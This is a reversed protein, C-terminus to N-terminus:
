TAGILEQSHQQQNWRAPGIHMYDDLAEAAKDPALLGLRIIAGALQKPNEQQLSLLHVLQDETLWDLRVAAVGFREGTEQQNKVIHTVQDSDLYGCQLAIDGIRAPEARCDLLAKSVSPIDLMRHAVLWRSFRHQLVQQLLNREQKDVLSTVCARNRGSRKAEYLCEDARAILRTGLERENRGPVAIAGGMSVTVPVRVDGFLFVESEVRSRIRECLRELGKETPQSVLVVFEEGGYRALVDSTRITSSFLRAIQKLVYDGFPHGYTDNVHKFHDVDAFIVGLATACRLCRKSETELMEDFFQRNYIETLPDHLAQKQLQRNEFELDRTGQEAAQQRLTAQVSAVHARLTLKVLQDNAQATLISSTPISESQCLSDKRWARQESEEVFQQTEVESWHFLESALHHLRDFAPARRTACVVDGTRSALAMAAQLPFNTSGKRALLWEPAVHHWRIAEVISSPLKWREMLRSGVDAHHLGLGNLELQDLRQDENAAEELIPRYETGFSSLLALRGVDLLLGCFSYQDVCDAAIKEAIIAAAASQVQSQHWCNRYHILLSSEDANNEILSFNLALANTVTAGLITSAQEVGGVDQRIGFYTTNAACVIRASMAPDAQVAQVIDHQEVVAEQTLELLRVVVTPLSPLQTISWIKTPDIM